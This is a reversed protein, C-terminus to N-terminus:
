RAVTHAEAWLIEEKLQNILRMLSQMELGRLEEDGGTERKDEEYLSELMQLKRRTNALEVDNLMRM